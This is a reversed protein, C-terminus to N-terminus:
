TRGPSNLAGQPSAHKQAELDALSLRIAEEMDREFAAEDAEQAVSPQEEKPEGQEPAKRPPIPPPNASRPVSPEVTKELNFDGGRLFTEAQSTYEEKRKVTTGKATDFAKLISSRPNEVNRCNKVAEQGEWRRAVMVQLEPHKKWNSRMSEWIGRAPHTVVGLAGAAPKMTTNLIGRASGKLVGVFGEERGGRVPETVLGTIADYYGYFLGKGGETIGSRWDNIKGVKRVNSGYITPANHFGEQVSDVIRAIGLPIATTASIIGDKKYFIEAIGLYYHTITWFIAGIGGTIPDQINKRTDFEKSRHPMLSEFKIKKAEVLIQAAFASLRLCYEDSWWVAVRTPDLDCRM